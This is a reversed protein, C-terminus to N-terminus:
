PPPRLTALRTFRGKAILVAYVALLGVYNLGLLWPTTWAVGDFGKNTLPYLFPVPYYDNSHTPIDIAIHLWWGLLPFLLAPKLRAVLATVGIAVVISHMACHAHHSLGHVLLPLLPEAGPVAVSYAAIIRWGDPQFASWAVVPVAHVVDPLVGMVIAGVVARDSAGYRRRLAVAAAGAWLGHSLIDVELNQLCQDPGGQKM